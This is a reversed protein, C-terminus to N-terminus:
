LSSVAHDSLQVDGEATLKHTATYYTFVAKLGPASTPIFLLFDRWEDFDIAGDHNRDMYGFFRDLREASVRVGARGFAAEVEGRQLRGDHDRDVEDFLGRLQRETQLCFHEFEAFTIRGDHNEDCAALMDRVLADNDSLPHDINRLGRQLAPTDLANTAQPDLRRWLARLRIDRASPSETRPDAM